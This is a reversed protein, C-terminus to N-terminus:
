VGQLRAQTKGQEKEVLYPKGFGSHHHLPGCALLLGVERAIPQHYVGVRYIAVLQGASPQANRSDKL